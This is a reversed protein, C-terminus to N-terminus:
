TSRYGIKARASNQVNAATRSSSQGTRIEQQQKVYVSFNVDFQSRMWKCAAAITLLM